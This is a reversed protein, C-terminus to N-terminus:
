RVAETLTDGAAGPSKRMEFFDAYSPDDAVLQRAYYSAWDNNVKFTDGKTEITVYWRIRHLLADASYRPLGAARAEAAFRRFLEYVKPNAAHFAAWREAAPSPRGAARRVPHATTM